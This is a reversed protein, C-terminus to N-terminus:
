ASTFAFILLAKRPAAASSRALGSSGGTFFGWFGIGFYDGAPQMERRRVFRALSQLEIAIRLEGRRDLRLQMRVAFGPPPRCSTMAVGDATPCPIVVAPLAQVSHPVAFLRVAVGAISSPGENAYRSHCLSRGRAANVDPLVAFM